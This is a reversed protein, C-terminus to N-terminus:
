CSTHYIVNQRVFTDTDFTKDAFQQRGLVARERIKIIKRGDRERSACGLNRPERPFDYLFFVSRPVHLSPLQDPITVMYKSLTFQVQDVQNGEMIVHCTQGQSAALGLQQERM